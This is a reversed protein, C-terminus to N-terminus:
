GHSLKEQTINEKELRHGLELYQTICEESLTYHQGQREITGAERLETLIAKAQAETSVGDVSTLPTIVDDLQVGRREHIKLVLAVMLPSSPPDTEMRQQQMLQPM